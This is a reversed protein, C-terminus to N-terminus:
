LQSQTIDTCAIKLNAGAGEQLCHDSGLAAHYVSMRVSFIYIVDSCDAKGDHCHFM